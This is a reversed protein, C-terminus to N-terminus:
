AYVSKKYKWKKYSWLWDGPHALIQREAERAYREIIPYGENAYPPQALRQLSVQYYGRKVREMAVFIVPYKTFRAIKEAGVAFATDRNLFRTWYKEEDRLPTQDAVIAFGRAIKKRKMMEVIINKLPIPNGGFRSRMELMLVDAKQNHLPKYVADLPFPLKLCGALLLWEWNCQHTTMLIVSQQKRAYDELIDQDKFDVRKKLDEPSISIAKIAEVTIDSLNKYCSKAIRTIEAPQKDPFSNRLNNFVIGKRYPVLYYVVLYLLDSLLYLLCLPLKSLVRFLM